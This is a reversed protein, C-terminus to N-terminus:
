INTTANYIDAAVPNVLDTAFQVLADLNFNKLEVDKVYGDNVDVDTCEAYEVEGNKCRVNFHINYPAVTTYYGEDTAMGNKSLEYIDAVYTFSIDFSEQIYPISAYYNFNHLDAYEDINHIESKDLVEQAIRELEEVTSEDIPNGNSDFGFGYDTDEGEGTIPELDDIDVEGIDESLEIARSAYDPDDNDQGWNERAYANDMESQIAASLEDIDTELDDPEPIIGGIPQVFVVNNDADFFAITEKSIDYTIGQIRDIVGDAIAKVYDDLEYIPNSFDFRSDEGVTIGAEIDISSNIDERTFTTFYEEDEFVGTTEQETPIKYLDVTEIDPDAFMDMVAQKVDDQFDIRLTTVDEGDFKYGRLMWDTYNPKANLNLSGACNIGASFYKSDYDKVANYVTQTDYSIVPVDEPNDLNDYKEVIIGEDLISDPGFNTLFDICEEYTDYGGYSDGNDNFIVYVPKSDRTTTIDTSATIGNALFEGLGNQFETYAAKRSEEYQKRIEVLRDLWEPTLYKEDFDVQPAYVQNNNPYLQIYFENGNIANQNYTYNIPDEDLPNALEAELMDEYLDHDVDDLFFWFDSEVAEPSLGASVEWDDPGNYVVHDASLWAGSSADQLFSDVYELVDSDEYGDYEYSDQNAIERIDEWEDAIGDADSCKISKSADIGMSKWVEDRWEALEPTCWFEGDFNEWYEDPNIDVAGVDYHEIRVPGESLKEHAYAVAEDMDDFSAGDAIGRQSHDYYSTVRFPFEDESFDDTFDGQTCKISKASYIGENAYFIEFSSPKRYDSYEVYFDSPENAGEAEFMVLKTFVLATDRPTGDFDFPDGFQNCYDQFIQMVKPDHCLIEVTGALDFISGEFQKKGNFYFVIDEDYYNDSATIRAKAKRKKAAASAKVTKKTKCASKIDDRPVDKYRKTDGYLEYQPYIKKAVAKAKREIETRNPGEAIISITDGNILSVTLNNSDYATQLYPDNALNVFEKTIYEQKAVKAAAVRKKASKSAKIGFKKVSKSSNIDGLYMTGPYLRKIEKIALDAVKRSPTAEFWFVKGDKMVVSLDGNDYADMLSKKGSKEVLEKEIYEVDYSAKVSKRKSKPVTLSKSSKVSKKTCGSKVKDADKMVQKVFKSKYLRDEDVVKGDKIGVKELNKRIKQTDIDSFDDYDYTEASKVSKKTCSADVSNSVGERIKTRIYQKAIINLCSYKSTTHISSMEYWLDIADKAMHDAIVSVDTLKYSGSGGLSSYYLEDVDGFQDRLISIADDYLSDYGLIKYDGDLLDGYSATVKIKPHCDDTAKVSKKGCASEVSKRMSKPICKGDPEKANSAMVKFKNAM